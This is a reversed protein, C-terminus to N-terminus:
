ALPGLDPAAGPPRLRCFGDPYGHLRQPRRADATEPVQAAAPDAPHDQARAAPPGRCAWAHADPETRTGVHGRPWPVDDEATHHARLAQKLLTRGASTTLARAPDRDAATTVRHPRAPQRCPTGHVAHPVAPAIADGM